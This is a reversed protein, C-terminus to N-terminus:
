AANRVIDEYTELFKGNYTMGQPITLGPNVKTQTLRCGSSIRVGNGIVSTSEIVTPNEQTSEVVAMRGVISDTVRASNGMKVADMIASGDITVHGGFTSFNDISSNSIVSYDKIRTHRGILVAGNLTLKGENCQRIIHERRRISDESTGQVWVNRDTFIKEERIRINFKGNLTERMAALYREPSGIDYWVKLEYGFVPFGNEVLFPIFDFGFDLRHREQMLHAVKGSEVIERAEPSLLYLGANALNSPSSQQKPKEVFRRIRMDEELDAIGYQEVETVRVLAITMLAGTQEHKAVMDELDLEFLNDGQVVLVPDTVDYYRMNLRYSDASGLDDLNPQHKIHVRPEIEYKASFGEGEGFQDFLNSYNTFGYEGFMFNRIGQEALSAMSFEILPRNLFRICAKSVDHTLPRMRKALGGVPIFCRM